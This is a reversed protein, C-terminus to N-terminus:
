DGAANSITRCILRLTSGNIVIHFIHTFKADWIRFSFPIPLSVLSSQNSKGRDGAPLSACLHATILTTVDSTGSLTTSLLLSSAVADKMAVDMHGM